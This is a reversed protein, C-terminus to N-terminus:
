PLVIHQGLIEDSLCIIEDKVKRKLFDFNPKRDSLNHADSGFVVKAGSRILRKVFRRERFSSFAEANVQFIADTNLIEDLESKSYIGIYRHIHALVPVIGACKLNHIEDLVWRGYGSFPLELLMLNTGEVALQEIGSIDSIGREIAIEAGLHFEFKTGHSIKAFANARKKLFDEVSSERHPYFHPTLIVRGVDQMKMMDLMRESIEPTEAGDDIGPLVHCHYDTLM